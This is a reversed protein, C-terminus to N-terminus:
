QQGRSEVPMQVPFIGQIMEGYRNRGTQATCKKPTSGHPRHIELPTGTPKGIRPARNGCLPPPHKGKGIIPDSRIPGHGLPIFGALCM